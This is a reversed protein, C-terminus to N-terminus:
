KIGGGSLINRSAGLLVLAIGIISNIALSENLIIVALVPGIVAKLLFTTSATIASSARIAQFFFYYALGTVFISLYVVIVINEPWVNALVPRKTALLFVLLILSGLIFSISTQTITGMKGVSVKGMVSYLGFLIAGIFVLTLGQATNGEQLNFPNAMIIIGSISLILAIVNKKRMKEETLFHAFFMTFMPNVSMIVAATSANSKIVGLQFITMSLPICVTGLLAMYAWDKLSIKIRRVRIEGIAFPLLLLGGFFFRLFTLQLQDLENGALKLSVEMTGFFFAALFIYIVVKRM